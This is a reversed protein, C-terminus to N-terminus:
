LCEFWCEFWCVVVQAFWCVDSAQFKQIGKDEEDVGVQWGEAL